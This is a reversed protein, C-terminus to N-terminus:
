VLHLKLSLAGSLAAPVDSNNAWLLTTALNQLPQMSEPGRPRSGKYIELAPTKENGNEGHPGLKQLWM